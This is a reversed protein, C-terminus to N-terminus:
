ASPFSVVTDDQVPATKQPRGKGLHALISDLERRQLHVRWVVDNQEEPTLPVQELNARCLMVMTNAAALNDVLATYSTIRYDM